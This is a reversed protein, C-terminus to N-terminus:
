HRQCTRHHCHCRFPFKATDCRDVFTPLSIVVVFTVISFCLVVSKLRSSEGEM